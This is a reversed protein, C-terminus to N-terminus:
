LNRVAREVRGALESFDDGALTLPAGIRVDVRGPRPWKWSRHLVRDLGVIRIPVVPVDLHSAIMGVGPQFREIEGTETRDGEPFILISWGEEILEGM